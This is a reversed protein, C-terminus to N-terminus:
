VFTESARLFGIYDHQPARTSTRSWNGLRDIAAVAHPALGQLDDTRVLLDRVLPAPALGRRVADQAWSSLALVGHGGAQAVRHAVDYVDEDTLRGRAWLGLAAQFWSFVVQVRPGLLEFNTLPIGRDVHIWIDSVADRPSLREVAALAEDIQDAYAGGANMVAVLVDRGVEGALIDAYLAYIVADVEADDGFLSETCEPPEALRAELLRPLKYGFQGKLARLRGKRLNRLNDKLVLSDFRIGDLTLKQELAARMQTPSGSLITARDGPAHRLLARLLVDAGPINRKSEPSEVAARLMGRVSFIDTDLYTRDLDWRFIHM